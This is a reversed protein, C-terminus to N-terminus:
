LGLLNLSSLMLVLQWLDEEIPPVGSRRGVGYEYSLDGCVALLTQRLEEIWCGNLISSGLDPCHLVFDLPTCFCM